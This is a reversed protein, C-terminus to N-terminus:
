KKVFKGKITTVDNTAKYIYIGTPLYSVNFEKTNSEFGVKRGNIDYITLELIDSASKIQIKDTVFTPYIYFSENDGNQEINSNEDVKKNTYIRLEGPHMSITANPNSVSLEEGSILEYWTGTHQFNPNASITTNADFNGLMVMNLDSHTVSIRKGATWDSSGINLKYSGETFVTPYNKKLQIAKSSLEYAEKRHPLELWSFASPKANTRGGLDDISYDYGMEGFQWIMKPGPTLVSFAIVLPVRKIRTISDTKITSNGYTKAKFFNREEDHSEAYGVWRRPSSNMGNFNAENAWGMAAESYAHNINRWLYMGKSALVSEESSVAFHELIFIANPNTAVVAEYYETLYDVRSQDFKDETGSNQTFGKTLDMRYGDVKYEKLWYELVRKFYERTGVYSHNFDNFVSFMHPATPNMWPNDTAPRNRASDWFLMAFPSSGTAHNFVMDLIVAMDRKHCEDIFKKYMEPTGYAKDPAFFQSPNYGWSDNGDFEQIPLLEIATVGLNKLYDLRDIAAELTREVTFDRLLLEYIVLNEPHKIKFDTVEWEYAKKKSQLTAVIGTTKGEPYAPINPYIERKENIWKDNWPDLVLETFPDTIRITNDVLYQFRYLKEPTLNEITLWWYEGDKKMQYANRQVWNNFDGIVFVSQKKPAHLILTASSGDESYNIGNLLGDPRAEIKVAAPVCVNVTDYKVESGATAKAILEYDIAESYTFNYSLTTTATATKVSTGNIILELNASQSSAIQINETSNLSAVKDSSPTSFAVNFGEQFVDIFIDQGGDAKGEKSKDASRFVFALQSVKEGSKTGYYQEITPGITLKWKNDGMAELKYKESNDGWTPAYLWSGLNSVVGTHAYVDGNFGMLGKTGQSADFIVEVVGSNQTFIVPNTTVIQSNASIAFLIGIIFFYLRTNMIITNQM